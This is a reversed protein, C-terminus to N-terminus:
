DWDCARSLHTIKPKTGAALAEVLGNVAREIQAPRMKAGEFMVKTVRNGSDNWRFGVETLFLKVDYTATGVTREFAVIELAPEGRRSMGFLRDLILSVRSRPSADTARLFAALISCGEGREIERLARMMERPPAGRELAIVKVQERAQVLTAPSLTDRTTLPREPRQMVAASTADQAPGHNATDSAPDTPLKVQPLCEAGLVKDPRTDIM